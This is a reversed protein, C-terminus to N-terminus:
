KLPDEGGKSWPRCRVIRKLGFFSGKIIGYKNIAQYTYESCSPNFRCVEDSLFFRKFISLHFFRTKQYIRILKLFIKKM